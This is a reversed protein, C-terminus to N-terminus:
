RVRRRGIWGILALLLLGAPAGPAPHDAARCGCGPESVGGGPRGADTAGTAADMDSAGPGADDGGTGDPVCTGAVCREGPDCTIGFCPDPVCAGDRCIEGPACSVGDCASFCEGDRCVDSGPCVVGACLDPVCEGDICLQDLPCAVGDCSDVCSGATCVETPGCTATECGPDVCEGFTESAERDDCAETSECLPLVLDDCACSPGCPRLTDVDTAVCVQNTPCLV